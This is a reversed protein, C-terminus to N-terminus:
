NKSVYNKRPLPIVYRLNIRGPRILGIRNKEWSYLSYSFLIQFNYLSTGVFPTAAHTIHNDAFFLDYGLGYSFVSYYGIEAKLGMYNGLYTEPDLGKGTTDPAAAPFNYRFMLAGGIMSGTKRPFYSEFANFAVGAVVSPYAAGEAGAIFGIYPPIIEGYYPYKIDTKIERIVSFYTNEDVIQMGRWYDLAYVKWGDEGNRFWGQMFLEGTSTKAEYFYTGPTNQYLSDFLFTETWYYDTTSGYNYTIYKVPHGQAYTHSELLIGEANRILFTGNLVRGEQSTAEVAIKKQNKKCDFSFVAKGEAYYAYGEYSSSMSDVPCLVRDLFQKKYGTYLQQSYSPFFFLMVFSLLLLNKTTKLM